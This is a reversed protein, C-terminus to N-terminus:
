WGEYKRWEPQGLMLARPRVILLMRRTELRNGSELRLFYKGSGLIGADRRMRHEGAPKEGNVLVAVEKGPVDFV